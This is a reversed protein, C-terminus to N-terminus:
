ALALTQREGDTTILTSPEAGVASVQEGDLLVGSCEPIGLLDTGSTRLVAEWRPREGTFHPIVAFDAVIGLGEALRPHLGPLVTWACLLM